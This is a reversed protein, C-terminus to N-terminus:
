QCNELDKAQYWYVKINKGTGKERYCPTCPKLGGQTYGHKKTLRDTQRDTQRFCAQNDPSQYICKFIRQENSYVNKNLRILSLNEYPM